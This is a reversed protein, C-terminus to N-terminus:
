VFGYQILACVYIYICIYIYGVCHFCDISIHTEKSVCCEVNVTSTAEFRRFYDRFFPNTNFDTMTKKGKKDIQVASMVIKTVNERVSGPPGARAEALMQKVALTCLLQSFMCGSKSMDVDVHIRERERERYM